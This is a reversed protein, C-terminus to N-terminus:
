QQAPRPAPLDLKKGGFQTKYESIAASTLDIGQAAYLVNPATPAGAEFVFSYEGREALVFVVREVRALMSEKLRNERETLEQQAAMFGQSFKQADELLRREEEALAKPDSVSRKQDLQEKKQKLVAQDAELKAKKKELDIKLGEVAATWEPASEMVKQVDVVGVKPGAWASTAALLVSLAVLVRVSAARSDVDSLTLVNEWCSANREVRASLESGQGRVVLSMVWEYVGISRFDRMTVAVVPIM